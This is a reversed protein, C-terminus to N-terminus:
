LMTYDLKKFLPDGISIFTATKSSTDFTNKSGGMTREKWLKSVRKM